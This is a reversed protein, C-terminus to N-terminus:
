KYIYYGTIGVIMTFSILLAFRQCFNRINARVYAVTLRNRAGCFGYTLILVTFVASIFRMSGGPMFESILPQYEQMANVFLDRIERPTAPRGQDGEAIREM